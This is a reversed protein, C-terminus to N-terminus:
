LLERRHEKNKELMEELETIQEDTLAFSEVLAAMANTRNGSFYSDAFKQSKDRLCEERTRLPKYHYVRSDKEDVEYGLLGKRSLRNMLVRIMKPTMDDINKMQEIVESSTLPVKSDWLIEMIKWESESPTQGKIGM